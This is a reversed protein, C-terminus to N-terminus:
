EGELQRVTKTIGNVQQTLEDVERQSVRCRRDVVDVRLGEVNTELLRYHTHTHTHINTLTHILVPHSHM